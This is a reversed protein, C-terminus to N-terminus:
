GKLAQELDAILDDVHEIGASLRFLSPTIGLREREQPSLTSHSTAAPSCITTDVGGLSVAPM